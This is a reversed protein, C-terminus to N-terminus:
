NKTTFVQIDLVRIMTNEVTGDTSLVKVVIWLSVENMPVDSDKLVQQM